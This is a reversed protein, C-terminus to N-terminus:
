NGVGGGKIMPLLVETANTRLSRLTSHFSSEKGSGWRLAGSTEIALRANREGSEGLLIGHGATPGEKGIYNNIDSENGNSHTHGGSATLAANGHATDNCHGVITFGGGSRSVWSGVPRNDGDLVDAAGTLQSGFVTVSDVTGDWVRVAPVQYGMGESGALACHGMCTCTPHTIICPQHVNVLIHVAYSWGSASIITLGSFRCGLAGSCNLATVAVLGPCGDSKGECQVSSKTLKPYPRMYHPMAIDAASYDYITVSQLGEFYHLGPAVKRRSLAVVAILISVCVCILM